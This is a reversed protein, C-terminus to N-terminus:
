NKKTQILILYVYVRMNKKEDINKYNTDIQKFYGKEVEKADVM